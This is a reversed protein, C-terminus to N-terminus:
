ENTSYAMNRRAFYLVGVWLLNVSVGALLRWWGSLKYQRIDSELAVQVSEPDGAPVAIGTGTASCSEATAPGEYWDEVSPYLEGFEVDGSSTIFGSDSLRDTVVVAAMKGRMGDEAGGRRRCESVVQFSGGAALLEFNVMVLGACFMTRSCQLIIYVVVAVLVQFVSSNFYWESM